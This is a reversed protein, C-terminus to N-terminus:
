DCCLRVVEVLSNELEQRIRVSLIVVNHPNNSYVRSLHLFFRFKSRDFGAIKGSLAFSWVWLISAGSTSAESPGQLGQQYINEACDLEIIHSLLLVNNIM